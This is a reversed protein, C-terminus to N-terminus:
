YLRTEISLMVDRSAATFKLLAYFITFQALNDISKHLFYQSSNEDLVKQLVNHHPVFTAVMGVISAFMGDEIKCHRAKLALL